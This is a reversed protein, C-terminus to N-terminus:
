LAEVQSTAATPGALLAVHLYVLVPELEPLGAAGSERIRRVVLEDV